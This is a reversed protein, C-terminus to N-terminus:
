VRERLSSVIYQFGSVGVAATVNDKFMLECSICCNIAVSHCVCCRIMMSLLQWLREITVHVHIVLLLM